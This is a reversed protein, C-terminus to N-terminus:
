KVHDGVYVVHEPRVEWESSGEDLITVYARDEKRRTFFANRPPNWGWLKVILKDGPQLRTFDNNWKMKKISM